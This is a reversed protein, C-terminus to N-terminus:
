GKDTIWSLIESTLLRKLSKLIKHLWQGASSSMVWPPSLM